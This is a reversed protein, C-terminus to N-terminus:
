ASSPMRSRTRDRPSPSTYLLCRVRQDGLEDRILQQVEATTKGWLATADRLEATGDHVWLCVPHGSAGQIIIADFGAQKLEAGWYGGVESDAYASTLPSKAGVSHRGSGGIPAGTMVGTSFVLVNDPGLPDTKPAMEKLLTHAVFGRGGLYRRHFIDDREETLVTGDSLNVRLVKGNYGYGM